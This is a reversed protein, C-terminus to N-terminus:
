SLPKAQLLWVSRPWQLPLLVLVRFDLGANSAIVAMLDLEVCFRAGRLYPEVAIIQFPFRAFADHGFVLDPLADKINEFVFFM